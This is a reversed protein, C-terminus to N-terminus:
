KSVKKIYVAARILWNGLRKATDADLDAVTRSIHIGCPNVWAFDGFDRPKLIRKPKM